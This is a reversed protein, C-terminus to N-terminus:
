AQRHFFLSPFITNTEKGKIQKKEREVHDNLRKNEQFISREKKKIGGLCSSFCSPFCKTNVCLQRQDTFFALHKHFFSDCKKLCNGSCGRACFFFDYM